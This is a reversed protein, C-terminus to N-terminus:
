NEWEYLNATNAPDNVDDPNMEFWWGFPVPPSSPPALGIWVLGPNMPVDILDTLLGGEPPVHLKWGPMDLGIYGGASDLWEIRIEYWREPRIWSTVALDVSFTELDSPSVEVVVPKATLLFSAIVGAGSPTFIVRPQQQVKNFGFDNLKFTVIAM